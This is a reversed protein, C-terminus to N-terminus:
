NADVTIATTLTQVNQIYARALRGAQGVAPLGVFVSSALITDGNGRVLVGGPATGEVALTWTAGGDLSVEVGFIILPDVNPWAERTLRIIIETWAANLTVPGFERRRANYSRSPASLIQM